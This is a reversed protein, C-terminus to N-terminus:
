DPGQLEGTPQVPEAAKLIQGRCAACFDKHSKPISYTDCEVQCMHSSPLEIQAGCCFCLCQCPM